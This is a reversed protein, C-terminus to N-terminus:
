VDEGDVWVDAVTLGDISNKTDNPAGHLAGHLVPHGVTGNFLCYPLSPGQYPSMLLAPCALPHFWTKQLIYIVVNSICRTISLTMSIVAQHHHTWVLLDLV